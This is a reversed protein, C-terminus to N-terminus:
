LIGKRSCIKPLTSRPAWALTVNEKGNQHLMSGIGPATEQIATLCLHYDVLSYSSCINRIVSNLTTDKKKKKVQSRVATVRELKKELEDLESELRTKIVKLKNM